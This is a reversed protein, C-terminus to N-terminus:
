AKLLKVQDAQYRSIWAHLEAAPMPRAIGYGQAVDCGNAALWALDSATEAGESTM